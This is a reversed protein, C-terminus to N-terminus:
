DFDIGISEFYYRIPYPKSYCHGALSCKRAFEPGPISTDRVYEEDLPSNTKEIEKLEESGISFIEGVDVQKSFLPNGECGSIFLLIIFIIAFMLGRKM